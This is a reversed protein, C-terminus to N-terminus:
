RRSWCCSASCAGDRAASLKALAYAAPAALVLTLVVTGLAVLLSTGFYPLQERLVREYGELTPRPRSCARAAVQAHRTGPHAVRHGDLLGPVVDGRDAAAGVATRWYRTRM